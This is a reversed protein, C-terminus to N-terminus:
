QTIDIDFVINGLSFTIEEIFDLPYLIRNFFDIVSLFPQYQDIFQEFSCIHLIRHFTRDVTILPNILIFFEKNM